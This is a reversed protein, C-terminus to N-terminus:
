VCKAFIANYFDPYLTILNHFNLDNVGELCNAQGLHSTQSSIVTTFKKARPNTVVVPVGSLASIFFIWIDDTTLTTVKITEWDFVRNDMIGYPYLCGSGTLPLCRYSPVGGNPPFSWKSYPLINQNEDTKIELAQNVVIANPYQKHKEYARAICNPDYIIDDDFTIVLEGMKQEQLAVFYKKHSRYDVQTYRIELGQKILKDLQKTLMKNPFQEECLWLEVVDPKMTQLLISKIAIHVVNIRGPYSTLSAIIKKDRPQTNLTCRSYPIVKIYVNEVWSLFLYWVYDMFRCLKWTKNLRPEKLSEIITLFM